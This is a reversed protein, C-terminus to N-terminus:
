EDEEGVSNFSYSIAEWYSRPKGVDLRFVDEEIKVANVRLKNEVLLQIADTLQYENSYGPKIRKLADFIVPDFVHLSMLALNSIHKKPKEITKNVKIIRHNRQTGIVVGYRSPNDVEFVSLTAHNKMEHHTAILLKIYSNNKSVMYNDGAALIFNKNGVFAESLRVADGFGKPEAQNIWVITSNNIKEYFDMLEESAIQKEKIRLYEIFSQDPTFHDEIVRKGRGTIFCFNRIGTDYLQEFILQIVPKLFFGRPTKYFIPLMEKPIEKTHPLLRTGLGAATIVAKRVM